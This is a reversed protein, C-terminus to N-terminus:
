CESLFPCCAPRSVGRGGRALPTGLSGTKGRIPHSDDALTPRASSPQKWAPQEGGRRRDEGRHQSYRSALVLPNPGRPHVPWFQRRGRRMLLKMDEKLPRVNNGISVAHLLDHMAECSASTSEGERCTSDRPLMPGDKQSHLTEIAESTLDARELFNGDSTFSLSAYNGCACPLRSPFCFPPCSPLVSDEAEHM